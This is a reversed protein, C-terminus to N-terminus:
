DQHISKLYFSAEEYDQKSVFIEYLLNSELNMGATGSISRTTGRGPALIKGSHDTTRYKYQINHTELLNRAKVFDNLKTTIFVSNRFKGLM